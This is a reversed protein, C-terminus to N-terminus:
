QPAAEAEADSSPPQEPEPPPPPAWPGLQNDRMYKLGYASAYLVAFVDAFTRVEYPGGPVDDDKIKGYETQVTDTNAMVESRRVGDKDYVADQLNMIIPWKDRDDLSCEVYLQRFSRDLAASGFDEITQGM